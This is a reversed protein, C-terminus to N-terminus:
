AGESAPRRSTRREPATKQNEAKGPAKKGPQAERGPMQSVRSNFRLDGPLPPADETMFKEVDASIPEVKQGQRVLQVGEVIM